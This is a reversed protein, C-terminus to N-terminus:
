ANQGIDDNYAAYLEFLKETLLGPKGNGITDGDLETVPKVLSTTSTVFAEKAAKAEEITFAREIITFGAKEALAMLSIRTIGRLIAHDTPRTVLEGDKTVIWANSSTGETVYGEEDVMWAEYAGSEKALQKGLINPLLSISKIDCRKWRIDPISIVKVGDSMEETIVAKTNRATMVVSPRLETSYAHDRVRTVGRSIQMYIIGNRVRNRRIVQNMVARMAPDSMPEPIRLEALSRWLRSMHWEPDVLQGKTIAIVEYIGDAFVFGRDNINVSAETNPVYQGNVYAIRSM